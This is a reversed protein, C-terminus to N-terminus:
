YTGQCGVGMAYRPNTNWSLQITWLGCFYSILGIEVIEIKPFKNDHQQFNTKLLFARKKM